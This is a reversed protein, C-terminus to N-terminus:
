RLLKAELDEDDSDYEEDKNFLTAHNVLGSVIDLKELFKKHVKNTPTNPFAGGGDAEKVDTKNHASIIDLTECGTAYEDFKLLAKFEDVKFYRKINEQGDELTAQSISSKYVQRQYIKDEVSNTSLLRYIM